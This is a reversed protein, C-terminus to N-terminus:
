GAAPPIVLPEHPGGQPFRIGEPHGERGPSLLRELETEAQGAGDREVPDVRLQAIADPLASLAAGPQPTEILGVAETQGEAAM